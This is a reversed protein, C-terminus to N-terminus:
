TAPTRRQLFLAAPFWVATLIAAPDPLSAVALFDVLAIGALLHSVAYAVNREARWLTWIIWGSLYVAVLGALHHFGGNVLWALGLPAGLLALPWPELRERTTEKRAMFSLGAVYAGMALASWVAAGTVGKAAVSAAALYTLFRCFGMLLPSLAVAKHIADYLLIAATLIAGTWLAGAGLFGLILMGLALWLFGWRWVEELAIAGSPIPRSIRRQRDFDADFADNLFMGGLYLFTMALSVGLLAGAREGGGLWWGAACNSWVTPLNSVRGLTLLTQIKPPPKRSLM